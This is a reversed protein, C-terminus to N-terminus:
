MRGRIENLLNHAITHAQGLEDEAYQLKESTEGSETRHEFLAVKASDLHRVILAVQTGNAGTV